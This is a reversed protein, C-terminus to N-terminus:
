RYVGSATFTSASDQSQLIYAYIQVGVYFANWFVFSGSLILTTITASSANRRSSETAMTVMSSGTLRKNNLSLKAVVLGSAVIVVILIVALLTYRTYKLKDYVTYDEFMYKLYTDNYM